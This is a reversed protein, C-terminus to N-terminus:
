YSGQDVECLLTNIIDDAGKTLVKIEGSKLDRVVVSMRKRASSFEIIELVEYQLMQPLHSGSAASASAPGAGSVPNVPLDQEIIISRANPRSRFRMGFAKAANSLALEDPSQASYTDRTQDTSSRDSEAGREM